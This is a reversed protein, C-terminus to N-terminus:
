GDLVLGPGEQNINQWINILITKTIEIADENCESNEIINEIEKINHFTNQFQNLLCDADLKLIEQSFRKFGELTAKISSKIQEVDHENRNTELKGVLFCIQNITVCAMKYINLAKLFCHYHMTMNNVFSDVISSYKHHQHIEKPDNLIPILPDSFILRHIENTDGHILAKVFLEERKEKTLHEYFRNEIM